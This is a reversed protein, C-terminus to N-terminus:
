FVKEFAMNHAKIYNEIMIGWDALRSLRHAAIKNAVRDQQKLGAFRYMVKTLENVVKEDSIGLRKLVFIGKHRHESASKEIYRGFGALDTTVSSVGLAAGELPTYGWPEYYSPFIGLHSGQMAEYYSLNLLGDAGSLYIPYFIIKVKDEKTNGLGSERLHELITDYGYIDHTSVPPMGEKKFKMSKKKINEIFSEEFLATENLNHESVINYSIDRKIDDLNEELFDKIDQFHVKNELLEPKIGRINGPVWLFAIVTKSNKRKKLKENLKGLAKIYIDIGKDHFEYRGALFYFLSQKIDFHYYPFFYSLCFERIRDRQYKHKISLEEFTPFIEIDLGNPLLIDTKKQILYGAEMSTIESVTTFVDAQEASKREMLYKSEMNYNYSAEVPDILAMKYQKKERNWEYIDVDSSALTRGLITAHTHFITGMKVKRSKLYLLAGGALWEHFHGVCKKKPNYSIIKELLKGATFSWVAPEDYDFSARLSDVQFNDYYDKKIENTHSLYNHFDILIAKPNGKILWTGYHCIIGENKLEDFVKKLNGAPLEEEFEGLAKKAYYPGVLIYNDGYVEKIRGAKSTVVTYIGGVKNCVEFSVEFLMDAKKEIMLM